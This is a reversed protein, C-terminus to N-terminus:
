IETFYIRVDDDDFLKWTVQLEKSNGSMIRANAPRPQENLFAM